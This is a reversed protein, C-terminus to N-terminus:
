IEKKSINLKLMKQYIANRSIGLFRAAKTKNWGTKELAEVIAHRAISKKEELFSPVPINFIKFDPPLDDITIISQQCVIFAYELKNQLERINGPWTYNMFIRLVDNSISKIKKNFKKNFVKIFYEVLLPIDECRDRLPPLDLKVVALRYYLDERFEGQQVKKSLNQNTAAIVRVDVKIPFSEGVREFENEQLVRLLHLQMRNSINGIEDLFITGGDALQFRGIRDSIAGTFAGKVHGFLESLLLEDSLAACNVKVLPKNKNGDSSHLAEAVLEKGTGSEGTIIVTTKVEALVKIFSCLKMMKDSKGVIRNFLLPEQLRSALNVLLTEDKVVMVCGNCDKNPDLLPYTTINVIRKKSCIECEVRFVEIPQKANITNVLVDEFRKNTSVFKFHLGRIDNGAVKFILEAANNIELVSLEKDVTIIAEKVSRFIAELNSRYKINEDILAKHHLASNTLRLLSDKRVPKQVYDYAGLRVAESATSVDPYGTVLIVPSVLKRKKVERLLDIGTKEGLKIDTFILEFNIESLKELGENYDRAIFVKFGGGMLAKEYAFLVDEDDDILLINKTM